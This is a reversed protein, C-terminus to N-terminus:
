ETVDGKGTLGFHQGIKLTSNFAPIPRMNRIARTFANHLGWKTRPQCDPFREDAQFYFGAVTDFHRAPLFRKAFADFVLVKAEDNSIEHQALRELQAALTEAQVLFRDFGLRIEQVLDLGTTHKRSLAILDGSLAMNDCVFVNCGAVAKVAMSQDNASRFGFSLARDANTVLGETGQAALDIVGFLANGNAGVAYKQKAVKMGRREIEGLITNVLTVHAIPQHNRGMPAPTPLHVLQGYEIAQAKIKNSGTSLRSAM